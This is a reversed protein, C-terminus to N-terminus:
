DQLPVRAFFARLEMSFGPLVDRGNITDGEGLISQPEGPHHVTVRKKESDILWVLRVGAEFYERLKRDMEARTNSASLVEVALDPVLSPIPDRPLKRDPIREWSLYAIDPIRVLGSFLRLMGDPGAVIGLQHTEVFEGLIRVLLAAIVSERFGIAKEVLTGDVLECLRNDRAEIRLVDAETATGLPPDLRIREPPVNGLRELLEALTSARQTLPASMTTM